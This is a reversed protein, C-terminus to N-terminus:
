ATAAEARAKTLANTKAWGQGIGARHDGQIVGFASHRFKILTGGPEESLRYQERSTSDSRAFLTSVPQHNRSLDEM